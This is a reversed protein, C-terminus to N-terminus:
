GVTVEDDIILTGKQHTYTFGEADLRQIDYTFIGAVKFDNAKDPTFTAEGVDGTITGTITKVANDENQYSFKVTAGM